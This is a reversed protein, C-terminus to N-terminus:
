PPESHTDVGMACTFGGGEGVYSPCWSDAAHGFISLYFLQIM